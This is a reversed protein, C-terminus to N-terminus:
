NSCIYSESQNNVVKSPGSGKTVLCGTDQLQQKLKEGPNITREPPLKFGDRTGDQSSASNGMYKVKTSFRTVM